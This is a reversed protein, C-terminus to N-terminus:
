ALREDHINYAIWDGQRGLRLFATLLSRKLGSGIEISVLRAQTHGNQNNAASVKWGHCSIRKVMGSDPIAHSDQRLDLIMVERTPFYDCRIANRQKRRLICKRETQRFCQLAVFIIVM